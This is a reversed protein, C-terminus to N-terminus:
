ATQRKARLTEAYAEAEQRNPLSGRAGAKAPTPTTGPPASAGGGAISGVKPKVNGNAATAVSAMSLGKEKAALDGFHKAVKDVLEQSIPALKKGHLRHGEPYTDRHQELWGVVQWKAREKAVENHDGEGLVKSLAADIMKDNGKSAEVHRDEYVEDMTEERLQKRLADIDISQPKAGDGNLDADAEDSYMSAFAKPDIKRKNFTDIGPALRDLDEVSKIGLKNARQYFQQSGQWQQEARTLREYDATSIPRYGDPLSAPSQAPQPAAPAPQGATQTGQEAM